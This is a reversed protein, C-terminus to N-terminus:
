RCVPLINKCVVREHCTCQKTFYKKNSCLPTLRVALDAVFMTHDSFDTSIGILYPANLHLDTLYLM